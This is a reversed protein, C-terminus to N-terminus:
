EEIRTWALPLTLGVQEFVIKFMVTLPVALVLGVLGWCLSWFAM